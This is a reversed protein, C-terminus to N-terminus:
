NLSTATHLMHINIIHLRSLLARPLIQQKLGHLM